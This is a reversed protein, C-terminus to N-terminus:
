KDSSQSTPYSPHITIYYCGALAPPPEPERPEIARPPPPKLQVMQEFTENGTHVRVGCGVM